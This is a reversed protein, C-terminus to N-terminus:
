LPEFAGCLDTGPLVEPRNLALPRSQNYQNAFRSGAMQNTLDAPARGMLVDKFYDALLVPQTLGTRADHHLITRQFRQYVFSHNNPDAQPRSIPAGSLELNLLPVVGPNGGGFPYADQLAVQGMFTGFFNVRLGQWSDLAVLRTFEIIRTAYNPQGVAPTEAKINQDVGPYTSFNITTAPMMDPDLLNILQPSGSVGVQVIQRQFFQTPLGLFMVTRSVPYGFNRVGGRRNFYDWIVDNDVRYGTQSFHRTDRMFAPLPSAPPCALGPQPTPAPAPRAFTLNAGQIQAGRDGGEDTWVVRDGSVAPQLEDGDSRTILFEIRDQLDYGVINLDEGNRRDAWAVLRDGISPQSRTDDRTSNLRFRETTDLNYAWIGDRDGDGRRYVVWRDSIDPEHSDNNDTIRTVDGSDLDKAYIDCCGERADEWVVVRGSLRPNLQDGDRRSVWFEDGDLTKARLDWGGDRNDQWVVLDGDIAPRDQDSGSRRAVWFSEDRSVDYGRIDRDGNRADVYVIVDGSIAPHSSLHNDTVRFERGGDLDRGYIDANIEDGTRSPIDRYDQWVVLDGSLRPRIQDNRRDVVTFTDIGVEQKALATQGLPPLISLLLGASLFGALLRRHHTIRPM